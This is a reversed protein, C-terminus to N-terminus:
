YGFRNCVGAGGSCGCRRGSWATRALLMQGVLFTALGVSLLVMKIKGFVNARVVKGGRAWHAAGAAMFILELGISAVIVKIVLYDSGLALLASAVLLKDALPDLFTGLETVQGRTRAM